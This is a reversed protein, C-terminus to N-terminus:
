LFHELSLCRKSGHEVGASFSHFIPILVPSQLPYEISIFFAIVCVACTHVGFNQVPFYVYYWLSFSISLAM